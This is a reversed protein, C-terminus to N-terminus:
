IKMDAPKRSIRLDTFTYRGSFIWVNKQYREDKYGQLSHASGLMIHEIVCNDASVVENIKHNLARRYKSPFKSQYNVLLLEHINSNHLVHKTHHEEDPCQGLSAATTSKDINPTANIRIQKISIKHSTWYPWNTLLRYSNYPHKPVPWTVTRDKTDRLDFSTM